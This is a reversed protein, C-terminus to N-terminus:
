KFYGYYYLLYSTQRFEKAKDLSIIINDDYKIALDLLLAYLVDFNSKVLKETKCECEDYTLLATVLDYFSYNEKIYDRLETLKSYYEIMEEITKNNRM